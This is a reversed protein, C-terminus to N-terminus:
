EVESAMQKVVQKVGQSRKGRLQCCGCVRLDSWKELLQADKISLSNIDILEDNTRTQVKELHGAINANRKNQQWVRNNIFDHERTSQYSNVFQRLRWCPLSKETKLPTLLRRIEM